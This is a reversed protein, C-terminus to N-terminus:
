GALAKEFGAGIVDKAEVTSFDGSGSELAGAVCEEYLAGDKALAKGVCKVVGAELCVEEGTHALDPLEGNVFGFVQSGDKIVLENCM